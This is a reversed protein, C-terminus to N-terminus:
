SRSRQLVRLLQWRHPEPSLDRMVFRRPRPWLLKACVRVSVVRLRPLLKVPLLLKGGRRVTRMSNRRIISRLTMSM